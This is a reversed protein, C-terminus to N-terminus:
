SSLMTGCAEMLLPFITSKPLCVSLNYLVYLALTQPTQEEDEASEPEDMNQEEFSASAISLCTQVIQALAEKNKKLTKHHLEPM